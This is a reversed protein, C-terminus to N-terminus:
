ILNDSLESWQNDNFLYVVWDKKIFPFTLNLHWEQNFYVDGTIAEKKTGDNHLFHFKGKNFTKM